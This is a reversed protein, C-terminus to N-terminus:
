VLKTVSQMFPNLALLIVLLFHNPTYDGGFKLGFKFNDQPPLM